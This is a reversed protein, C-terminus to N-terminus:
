DWNIHLIGWCGGVRPLLSEGLSCDQFLGFFDLDFVGYNHLATLGFEVAFVWVGCQLHEDNTVTRSSLSDYCPAFIFFECCLWARTM